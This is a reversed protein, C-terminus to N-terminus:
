APKFLCNFDTFFGNLNLRIPNIEIAKKYAKIVEEFNVKENLMTYALGMNYYAEEDPKIDIAKKYAEIAKKFESKHYNQNGELLYEEATKEYIPHKVDNVMSFGYIDQFLSKEDISFIASLEQL